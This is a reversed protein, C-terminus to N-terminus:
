CEIVNRGYELLKNRYMYKAKRCLGCRCGERYKAMVGHSFEKKLGDFIKHCRTCLGKYDDVCRRHKGSVNAWQITWRGGKNKRGKIGCKSCRKPNGHEKIIGKHKSFYDAEEGKWNPSNEGKCQGESIKKCWWKPLKKGKLPHEHVKWYCKGCYESTPSMERKCEPCIRKSKIYNEKSIRFVNYNGCNWKLYKGNKHVDCPNLITCKTKPRGRM